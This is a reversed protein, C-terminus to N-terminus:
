QRHRAARRAPVQFAAAGGQHMRRRLGPRASGTGTRVVRAVDRIADPRELAHRGHGEAAPRSRRLAALRRCAVLLLGGQLVPAMGLWTSCLARPRPPLLGPRDRNGPLRLDSLRHRRRRHCRRAVATRVAGQPTERWAGLLRDIRSNFSVYDALRPLADRLPLKALEAMWAFTYFAIPWTSPFSQQHLKLLSEALAKGYAAYMALTDGGNFYWVWLPSQEVPPSEAKDDHLTNLWDTLLTRLEAFDFGPAVNQQEAATVLDLLIDRITKDDDFGEKGHPRKVEAEFITRVLHKASRIRDLPGPDFHFPVDFAGTAQGHIFDLDILAFRAMVHHVTDPGPPMARKVADDTWM